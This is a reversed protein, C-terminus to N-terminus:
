KCGARHLNTWNCDKVTKKVNDQWGYRLEEFSRECSNGVMSERKSEGERLKSFV